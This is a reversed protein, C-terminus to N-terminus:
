TWPDDLRRAIVLADVAVIEPGCILPNVDIEAVADGLEAVLVSFLAITRALADLDVPPGSRYGDLLPRLKLRDVLRRATAIGFPPLASRRDSLLEVLLGGAGVTVVPGFQPDRVAGLALEVGSPIM